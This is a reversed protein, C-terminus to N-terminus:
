LQWWSTLALRDSFGCSGGQCEVPKDTVGFGDDEKLVPNDLPVTQMTLCEPCSFNVLPRAGPGRGPRWGSCKALDENKSLLDLYRMVSGGKM